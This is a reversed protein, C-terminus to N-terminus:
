ALVIWDGEAGWGTMVNIANVAHPEPDKWSMFTGYGYVNGTGVEINGGAWSVWFPRMEDCSLREGKVLVKASEYAFLTGLNDRIGCKPDSAYGHLLIEYNDTQTDGPTQQLELHADHCAKVSFAFFSKGSVDIPPHRYENNDPTHIELVKFANYLVTKLKAVEKSLKEVDGKKCTNSRRGAALFAVCTLIIVLQKMKGDQNIRNKSARWTQMFALFVCNIYWLSTTKVM